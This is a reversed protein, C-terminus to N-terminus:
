NERIQTTFLWISM